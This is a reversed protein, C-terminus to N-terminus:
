RIVIRLSLIPCDQSNGRSTLSIMGSSWIQLKTSITTSLMSTPSASCFYLDPGPLGAYERRINNRSAIIAERSAM